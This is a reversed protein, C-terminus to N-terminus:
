AEFPTAALPKEIVVHLGEELCREALAFHTAVPTAIAVAQLPLALFEDLSSVLKLHGHTQRLPELRAPNADYVAAVETLPSASFNRVLNPGWYGYGIIGVALKRM